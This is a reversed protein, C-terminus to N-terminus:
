DKKYFPTLYGDANLPLGKAWHIPRGMIECIVELEEPSGKIPIELVAEDHVHIVIKYGEDDLALMAECLLDRAIAQTINELLKGGYTQVNSWQGTIQDTGKYQIAARGWKNTTISPERYFLKRGSPLLITLYMNDYDYILLKNKSKVKRGLQMAKMACRECDAWLDVIQRNSARWRKVIRKMEAESLGMAEGGMTKMAGVAGGYGLALEAIKGKYRLDSGKTVSEIPVSFMKAASAEYIKGDGNFVDLRWKEAALWAVVRAEIASFDAAALTNGEGAIFGTRILQSLVEPIDYLMAAYSYNNKAIDVRVEAIPQIYNRKLNQPQVIRGAWRGTRGAGYFQIFGRGRNDKCASRLMADYKKISTKSINQRLKLVRRVAGSDTIELLPKISDKALSKITKQMAKSLWKKLQTVSNPNELGTLAKMEKISAAKDEAYLQLATKAFPIDLLVGRDNIQQDLLYLKRETEPITYSELQEHIYREAEVDNANYDKFDAWKVPDHHPLNRTRFGNTKTPKCPMCFYRILAKGTRLKAKDEPVGVAKSSRELGLPLGCYSSKVSTCGWQELPVDYGAKKLGIREFNANFAYKIVNPNSLISLVDKPIFDGSAVDVVEVPHNDIAYAFLLLEFSDHEVYKYAGVKKIDLDCYTEIDIHIRM